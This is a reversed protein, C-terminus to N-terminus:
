ANIMMDPSISKDVVFTPPKAAIMKPIIHMQFVYGVHIPKSTAASKAQAMPKRLPKKISLTPTIFHTAVNAV